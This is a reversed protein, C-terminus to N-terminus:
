PTSWRDEHAGGLGEGAASLREGAGLDLGHVTKEWYFPRYFLQLFGKWAGVSMLGWYIPSFLAFKVLDFYGRRMSGAVNLYAFVFNGIHLGFAAAYYVFGPFLTRIVGAETLIWLTTLGWYIPNLLFTAFTGGVVLQFSLWRRWGLQGALRLPHRMHVLWTQIYGKVWRSRQRVWNSLDSNAEEYTTSDVMVTHFGAKALRIGLDADEAVNHPDWAGLELLQETLFHNSTGGLPIPSDNADLGPMVLDFWMSYETTFWSTLTNQYRNYYNLKCQVCSVEPGAKAFAIVVKKLQDPDPQDEADYIVVYQGRAHLLGYNCAKPKTKPQTDPIVILRFQPPLDLDLIAQQTEDDDEECLLKIDLKSPPYDLRALSATLRPLVTAERYLPVLITYDPLTREDVAELEQRSVPLELNHALSAFVLRFRYISSLSYFLISGINFAIITGIPNIVLGVLFLAAIAGFVLKQAHSIVRFASDEPRRELLRRVSLAVNDSAGLRQLLRDIATDTAVLARLPMGAQESLAAFADEDLPDEMAVTLAGDEIALPVVRYRRAMGEPILELAEAEPEVGDLDTTPMHLQAALASVLTEERLQGTHTLITGLRDGVRRQEALAEDLENSTLLGHHVLLEGIRPPALPVSPPAPTPPAPSPPGSPAPAAPGPSPASAAPAPPPAVPEESPQDLAPAADREATRMAAVEPRAPPPAAPEKAPRPESATKELADAAAAAAALRARPGIGPTPTAGVLRAVAVAAAALRERAESGAADAPQERHRAELIDDLGGAGFLRDIAGEIRLRPALVLSLQLADGDDLMQSIVQLALADDPDAVALEVLDGDRRLPLVGFLRCVDEAVLRPARDVGLFEDPRAFRWPLRGRLQTDRPIEEWALGPATLTEPTM